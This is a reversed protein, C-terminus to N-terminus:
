GLFRHVSGRNSPDKKNDIGFLKGPYDVMRELELAKRRISEDKCHEKVLEVSQKFKWAGRDGSATSPTGSGTVKLNKEGIQTVAEQTAEELLQMLGLQLTMKGRHRLKEYATQFVPGTLPTWYTDLLKQAKTADDMPGEDEPSPTVEDAYARPEVPTPDSSNDWVHCQLRERFDQWLALEPFNQLIKTWAPRCSLEGFQRTEILLLRYLLCLFQARYRKPACDYSARVSTGGFLELLTTKKFWESALLLAKQSNLAAARNLAVRDIHGEGATTSVLHLLRCAEAFIAEQPRELMEATATRGTFAFLTNLVHRQEALAQRLEDAAESLRKFASAAVAKEKERENQWKDPHLVRALQRYAYAVDSEGYGGLHAGGLRLVAEDAVDVVEQEHANANEKKPEAKADDDVERCFGSPGSAASRLIKSPEASQEGASDAEEEEVELDPTDLAVYLGDQFGIDGDYDGGYVLLHVVALFSTLLRLYTSARVPELAAGLRHMVKHDSMLKLLQLGAPFREHGYTHKGAGDNASLLYLSALDPKLEVSGEPELVEPGCPLKQGKVRGMKEEYIEVMQEAYKGPMVKLGKEMEVYTRRLFQFSSNM